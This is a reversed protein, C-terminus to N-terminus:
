AQRVEENLGWKPPYFPSPLPGTPRYSHKIRKRNSTLRPFAVRSYKDVECFLGQCDIAHLRRGFLNRFDIGDIGNVKRFEVMRMILQQPTSDTYSTYVKRMGRLAGPGPMTFDNESFDLYQTYNLDIAIQYAMFPGLMPYNILVRYVDELSHAQLLKRGAGDSKFMHAVLALHNRHKARHGFASQGALIFASTYISQSRQLVELVDGLRTIDITTARIGDTAQELAEWTAEKSFLRFLVVRLLTDEPSMHRHGLGYIVERILYQSVRDSARYANCFKYQALVPDDTWPPSVHRVRRHFILQREAALHWYADLVEPRATPPM